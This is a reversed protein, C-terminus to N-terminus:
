KGCVANYFNKLDLKSETSLNHWRIDEIAGQLAYLMNICTDSDIERIQLFAQRSGAIKLEDLNSIGALILKKELERGINVQKSLDPM